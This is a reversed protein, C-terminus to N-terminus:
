NVLKLKQITQSIISFAEDLDDTGVNFFLGESACANMQTAANGGAPVAYGITFVVIGAEKARACINQLRTDGQAGTVRVERRPGWWDIRRGEWFDANEQSRSPFGPIIRYGVSTITSQPTNTGDTMLVVFKLTEEDSFLAPRDDFASDIDGLAILSSVVPQADPDLLATGWKMGINASTMGTARLDDIADTLVDIDNSLPVISIDSRPCWDTDVASLWAASWHRTQRLSATRSINTSSYDSADFDVCSSYDHWRDYNFQDALNAGASVQGSFPVLSISTYGSRDGDLMDSVFNGAAARLNVIKTGRMSGSIDVVLSLEIENQKIEASSAAAGSLTEIGAIKLFFTDVGFNSNAAVRQSNMTFNPIVTVGLAVPDFGSSRVYAMVTQEANAEAAAIEAPTIAKADHGLGAAALVGRDLADQVGERKYEYNMFDVAMGGGVVMVLFMILVFALIGGSEDDRFDKIQKLKM